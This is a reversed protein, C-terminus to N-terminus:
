DTKKRSTTTLCWVSLKLLLTLSLITQVIFQLQQSPAAATIVNSLESPNLLVSNNGQSFPTQFSDATSFSGIPLLASSVEPGVPVAATFM